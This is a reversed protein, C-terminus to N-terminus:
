PQHPDSHDAVRQKEIDWIRRPNINHQYGDEQTEMIRMGPDDICPNISLGIGM